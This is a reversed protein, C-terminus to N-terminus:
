ARLGDSVVAVAHAAQQVDRRLGDKVLSAIDDNLNKGPWSSAPTTAPSSKGLQKM